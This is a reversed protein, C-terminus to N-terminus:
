GCRTNRSGSSVRANAASRPSKYTERAPWYLRAMTESIIVSAEPHRVDWDSFERGAVLKMRTAQLFGSGFFRGQVIPQQSVPVAPRGEIAIPLNSGGQFPMTDTAAAQEVGAGESHLQVQWLIIEAAHLAIGHVRRAPVPAEEGPDVRLHDRGGRLLLPV